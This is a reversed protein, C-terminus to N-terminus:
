EYKEFVTNRPLHFNWSNYGQYLIPSTVNVSGKSTQSSSM